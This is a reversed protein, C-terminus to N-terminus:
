ELLGTVDLGGSFKYKKPLNHSNVLSEFDEVGIPFNHTYSFYYPEGVGYVPVGHNYRSIYQSKGDIVTGSYGRRQARQNHNTQASPVLPEEDYPILGELDDRTTYLIRSKQVRSATPDRRDSKVPNASRKQILRIISPQDSHALLTTVFSIVLIFTGLTIKERLM